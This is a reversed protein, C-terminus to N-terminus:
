SAGSLACVRAAPGSIDLRWPRRGADPRPRVLVSTGPPAVGEVAFPYDGWRVLSMEVNGGGRPSRVQLGPRPVGVIVSAPAEGAWRLCGRRARSPAGGKILPVPEGSLELGPPEPVISPGQARYIALDAYARADASRELLSDEGTYITGGFRDVTAEVSGLPLMLAFAGSTEIFFPSQPALTERGLGFAAEQALMRDGWKRLSAAAGRDMLDATQWAGRAAVLAVVVLLGVRLAPGARWISVSRERVREPWRSPDLDAFLEVAILVFLVVGLGVYRPSQGLNPIESRAWAVGGWYALYAAILGVLRAHVRRELVMRAVALAAALLVLARGVAFSTGLAAAPGGPLADWGINVATKFGAWDTTGQAPIDSNWKEQWWIWAAAPVVLVWLAARRSLLLEVGAVLLFPPGYSSSALAVLLLASAGLDGRVDRRDLLFLAGLGALISLAQGIQFPWLLTEWGRNVLVLALALLAWWPGVRRRALIYVLACSGLHTALLAIRWPVYSGIGFVDALGRYALVVTTTWNGNQSGFLSAETLNGSRQVLYAWDDLLFTTGRNASLIVASAAVGFAVALLWPLWRSARALAGLGHLRTHAGRQRALQQLESSCACWACGARATPARRRARRARLRHLARVRAAAARRQPDGPSWVDGSRAIYEGYSRYPQDVGKDYVTLKQEIAMDDFTAMRKSGVVTFRREKHPDLWSLHLHAAVGSPFRLYCFVVDEVGDRM